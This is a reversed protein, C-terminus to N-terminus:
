KSSAIINEEFIKKIKYVIQEYNLTTYNKQHMNDTKQNKGEKEKYVSEWLSSMPNNRFTAQRQLSAKQVVM